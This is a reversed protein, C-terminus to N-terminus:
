GQANGTRAVLADTDVGRVLLWGGIVVEFLITAPGFVLLTPEAVAPALINGLAGLIMLGFALMGFGSLWRPISRSQWFLWCFLVTGLCLPVITVSYGTSRTELALGALANVQEAPLIGAVDLGTLLLIAALGIIVTVAGVVAEMLRWLLALVALRRDVTRLVTYLSFALLVVAAFLVLDLTLWLRFLWESGVINAATAQADGAVVLRSEIFALSAISYFITVLYTGGAIRAYKNLISPDTQHM